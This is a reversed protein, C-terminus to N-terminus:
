KISQRNVCLQEHLEEVRRSATREFMWPFVAHVMSVLALQFFLGSFGSAVRLHQFYSEGVDQPHKTFPNHTTQM